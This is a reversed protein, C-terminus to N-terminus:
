SSLYAFLQFILRVMTVTLNVYRLVFDEELSYVRDVQRGIDRCWQLGKHDGMVLVSGPASALSVRGALCPEEPVEESGEKLQWM